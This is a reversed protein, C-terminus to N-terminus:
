NYSVSTSVDLNATLTEKQDAQHDELRVPTTSSTEQPDQGSNSGGKNPLQAMRVIMFDFLFRHKYSLGDDMKVGSHSFARRAEDSSSYTILILQRRKGESSITMDMIKGFQEFYKTVDAKPFSQARLVAITCNVTAPKVARQSSPASHMRVIVYSNLINHKSSKGDPEIKGDNFARLSEERSQYTVRLLQKKTDKHVIEMEVITGYNNFHKALELQSYKVTHLVVIM